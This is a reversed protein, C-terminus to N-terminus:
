LGIGNLMSDIAYELEAISMGSRAMAATGKLLTYISIANGQANHDLGLAISQPDNRFLELYLASPMADADKLLQHAKTPVDGGILEAQCLVLYCGKAKASNCQMKTVSMMHNKIRQKLSAGAEFLFELHPEMESEIYRQTAKIFLAEKNGFTSYMSPKNIGMSKTLETSAGAYGKNWFVTMAADLATHEDFSRRKGQVV